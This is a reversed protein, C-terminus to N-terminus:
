LDVVYTSVYFKSEKGASDTSWGRARLFHGSGDQVSQGLDHGGARRHRLRRM